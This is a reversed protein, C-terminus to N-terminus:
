KSTLPFDITNDGPKVEVRLISQTNYRPPLLSSKDSRVASVRALHFGVKAGKDKRIYVLDYQGNEDTTAASARGAETPQFVLGAGALPQGDLTVIGHVTGLPPRDGHGCGSSIPLLLCAAVIAQGRVMGAFRYTANRDGAPVITPHRDPKM